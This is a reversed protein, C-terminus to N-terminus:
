SAPRPWAARHLRATLTRLHEVLEPPEHIDFEFGFAAVWVALHDLSDSGIRLTCTHEDIPEVVGLSPPVQDAVATASGHMTLVAQYRQRNATLEAALYEALDETPLPRPTFRPGTPVRLSVRDIRFTRWDSRDIDWAFLYWRRGSHVVRYPEVDRRTQSGSHARYDFRLRHHERVASAIATLTAPEVTRGRVPTAVVASSLTSVQHRLRSPLVQDLKVLARLSTEAIGTIAGAAATRLGVVVAVAEEDDLLLPPLSTGAALEYGGGVGGMANIPYGLNRLKDVDRRVTRPSVGLRQALEPGSWGRRAQFLALLRLLRASTELM